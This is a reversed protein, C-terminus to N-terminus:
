ASACTILLYYMAEFTLACSGPVPLSLELLVSLLSQMSSFILYFFKGKGPKQQTQKRIKSVPLIYDVAEGLFGAVFAKAKAKM